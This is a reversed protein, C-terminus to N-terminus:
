LAAVSLPALLSLASPLASLSAKDDSGTLSLIMSFVVPSKM